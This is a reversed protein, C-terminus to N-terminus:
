FPLMGGCQDACDGMICMLADIASMAAGMDGDFCGVVCMLDPQGGALCDSVACIVGQLCDPDTVCDLAQPCTTMICGICDLPSTGGTGGTGSSTTGGTGGTGSSTTGGTGGTGSSTSTGGGAASGGEGDDGGYGPGAEITRGGCAAALALALLLFLLSRIPQRVM